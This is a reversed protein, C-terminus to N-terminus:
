ARAEAQPAQWTRLLLASRPGLARLTIRRPTGEPLELPDVPSPPPTPVLLVELRDPALAEPARGPWEVCTLRGKGCADEFGAHELDSVGGLRYLDLHELTLGGPLEFRQAVVFTPSTVPVRAPLGLGRALGRVFLTKGAGLDGELALTLGDARAAAELHAGLSRALRETAEPGDTLFARECRVSPPASTM